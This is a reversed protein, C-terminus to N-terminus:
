LDAPEEFVDTVGGGSNQTGADPRARCQLPNGQPRRGALGALATGALLTILRKFPLKM